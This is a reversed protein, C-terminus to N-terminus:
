KISVFDFNFLQNICQKLTFSYQQEGNTKQTYKYSDMKHSTSNDCLLCQIERIPIGAAMLPTKKRQLICIENEEEIQFEFTFLNPRDRSVWSWEFPIKRRKLMAWCTSIVIVVVVYTVSVRLAKNSWKRLLYDIFKFIITCLVIIWVYFHFFRIVVIRFYNKPCNSSIGWNSICAAREEFQM